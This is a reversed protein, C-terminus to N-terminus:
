RISTATGDEVAQYLATIIKQVKIGDDLSCLPSKKGAAVQLFHRMETLFLDNRSFDEPLPYSKWTQDETLYLRLEGSLYNWSIRGESGIIELFHEPPRQLYNLHM